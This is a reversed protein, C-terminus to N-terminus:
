SIRQESAPPQPQKFDKGRAMRISPGSFKVGIAGGLVRDSFAMGMAQSPFFKWWEQVDTNTTVILSGANRKNRDVVLRFLYEVQEPSFTMYALDDLVLVDLRVFYRYLKPFLHSDRMRHLREVLERTNQVSAQYQRRIAEFALTRALKSKGTGVSGALVINRPAPAIYAGRSLDRVLAPEVGRTRALEFDYNEISDTPDLNAAKVLHEIRRQQRGLREEDLLGGLFQLTGLEEAIARAYSKEFRAAVAPMRLTNLFRVIDAPTYENTM